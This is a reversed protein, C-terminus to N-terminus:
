QAAIAAEGPDCGEDEARPLTFSFRAGGEPRAEARVSGGMSEVLRRVISLGLGVGGKVGGRERAGGQYFPEFLRAAEGEGLGIGEDEVSVELADAQQQARLTVRGGAPSYKLANELLQGLVTRLSGLDALAPPLGSPAEASVRHRGEDVSFQEAVAHLVRALDVATLNLDHRGAEARSSILIKEVISSLEAAADAIARVAVQRREPAAHDGHTDLWEAFSRIVTLPTKLEHSTTAMFMSKAAELAKYRSIDRLVVVREGDGFDHGTTEVWRDEALQRETPADPRGIPLPFPRGLAAAAALATVEAAARNWGTVVGDADLVAVGDALADIVAKEHAQGAVVGEYQFANKIAAGGHGALLDLVDLQVKSLPHEPAAFLAALAGVFQGRAQVPTLVVTHLGPIIAVVAPDADAQRHYDGIYIRRGAEAARVVRAGQAPFRLDLAAPPLGHAAAVRLEDDGALVIFASADAGALEACSRCIRDLVLDYDLDANLDGIVSLLRDVLAPWEGATDDPDGPSSGDTTSRTSTTHPSTTRRPPPDSLQPATSNTATTM